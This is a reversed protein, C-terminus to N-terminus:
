ERGFHNAAAETANELHIRMSTRAAVPDRKELADIILRHDNIAPHVGESRIREFFAISLKSSNRLRWLWDVMTYIAANQCTEAIILHFKWDSKESADARVQEEEMEKLTDKLQEIRKHTARTAALACAEPEFLLRAELIEFPGVGQDGLDLRPQNNTVYTGSGSRIEIIGSLEMAIMAERITPRSVGLREALDREAPFKEGPKIKSTKILNTLQDAVKIYLRDSKIAEFEV